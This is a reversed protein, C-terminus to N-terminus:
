NTFARVHLELKICQRQMNSSRYVRKFAKCELLQIISSKQHEQFYAVGRLIAESANVASKLNHLAALTDRVAAHAARRVKPRPDLSFNLLCNFPAIATPWNNPDQAAAVQGLAAVAARMAGAQKHLVTLEFLKGLAFNESLFRVGKTLLDLKSLLLSSQNPGTLCAVHQQLLILHEACSQMIEEALRRVTIVPTRLLANLKFLWVALSLPPLCRHLFPSISIVQDRQKEIVEMLISSCSVFKSRVLSDPIRGLCASLVTCLAM